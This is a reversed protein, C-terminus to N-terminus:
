WSGKGGEVIEIRLITRNKHGASKSPRRGDTNRSLGQTNQVGTEILKWAFNPTLKLKDDIGSDAIGINAMEAKPEDQLNGRGCSAIITTVNYLVPKHAVRVRRRKGHAEM